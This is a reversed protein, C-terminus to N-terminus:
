RPWDEPDVVEYETEIVRFSGSPPADAAAPARDRLSAAFKRWRWWGIAAFVAVVPLLILALGLSLVVFAAALALGLTAGLVAMVRTGWGMSTSGANTVYIRQM